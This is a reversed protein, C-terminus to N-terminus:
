QAEALQASQNQCELCDEREMPIYGFVDKALYEVHLESRDRYTHYEKNCQGCRRPISMSGSNFNTNSALGKIINDQMLGELDFWEDNFYYLLTEIFAYHKVLADRSYDAGDARTELVRKLSSSISIKGDRVLRRVEPDRLNARQRGKSDTHGSRTNTKAM